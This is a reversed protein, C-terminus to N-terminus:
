RQRLTLAMREGPLLQALIDVEVVAGDKRVVHGQQQLPREGLRMLDISVATAPAAAAPILDSGHLGVLEAKTYGLLACAGDDVEEVTALRNIIVTGEM